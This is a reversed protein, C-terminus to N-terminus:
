PSEDCYVAVVKEEELRTSGVSMCAYVQTTQNKTPLRDINAEIDAGVGLAMGSKAWIPVTRIDTAGDLPILETSVFTIGLYQNVQGNVLAKVSNYDASTVETTSLLNTLQKASIACYLQNMPDDLDVDNGLIIERAALLKDITLGSNTGGLDVPVEQSAPLPTVTTGDKGTYADAFFAEIIASDKARGLAYGASIAYSSQPDILMKVKDLKDILDAWAYDEPVVMRRRHPTNVYSTDAHRATIKYADTSGIQEFFGKEGVISEFIVKDQLKSGKQQSLLIVNSKFQEVFATTIETSM